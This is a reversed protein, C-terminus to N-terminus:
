IRSVTYLTPHFLFVAPTDEVLFRQFDSYSEKRKELDQTKRGEELLKDIKLSKYGTINSKQTSHWLVYQDPDSPIEQSILLAEFGENLTTISKIKTEIGLKQWDKKIEEAIPFLSPITALEIEQLPESGEDTKAKELLKQANALDFEYKKVTPNFAWSQPNIPNLARPQWRKQIGYALAQRTTKAALKSNRTDFFVVVVRNYKIEQTIQVNKQEKLNGPDNIEKINNVEALKFAIRAAAETPYFRFVFSPKNKNKVPVLVIKEIILGNKKISKVKYEGTGVWEKKFVPQSVISPFPSFPEKLVYKIKKDDIVTTAVDSFNYNIDKALIPKGDQWFLNDKLTFIYEKDGNATEWGAVLQPQVQGDEAITTLGDSILNQVSLPLDNFTFKGVIGIKETKKPPFFQYIKPMLLFCLIGILFSILILKQQKQWFASLFRFSFRVKKFLNRM